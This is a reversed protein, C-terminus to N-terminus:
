RPYKSFMVGGGGLVIWLEAGTPLIPQLRQPSRGGTIDARKPATAV